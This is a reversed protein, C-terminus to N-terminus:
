LSTSCTLIRRKISKIIDQLVSCEKDVTQHNTKVNLHFKNNKDHCNVCFKLNKCESHKHGEQGCNGCSISVKTCERTSHSFRLCRGCRRVDISEYIPARQIGLLVKDDKLLIVKSFPDVEFIVTTKKKRSLYRKVVTVYSNEPLNNQKILWAILEDDTAERVTDDGGTVKVRPKMLKPVVVNYSPNDKFGEQLKKVHEEDWCDAKITGDDDVVSKNLKVEQRIVLEKLFTTSKKKTLATTPRIVVRPFFDKKVDVVVKTLPNNQYSSSQTQLNSIKDTLHDLKKSIDIMKKKEGQKKVFCQGCTWKLSMNLAMTPFREKLEEYQIIVNLFEKNIFDSQCHVHFWLGCKGCLVSSAAGGDKCFGCAWPKSSKEKTKPKGM